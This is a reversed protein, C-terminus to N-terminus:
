GDEQLSSRIQLGEPSPGQQQQKPQIIDRRSLSLAGLVGVVAAGIAVQKGLRSTPLLDIRGFDSRSFPASAVATGHMFGITPNVFFKYGGNGTLQGAIQPSILSEKRAQIRAQKKLHRSAAKAEFEELQNNTKKMERFATQSTKLEKKTDTVLNGFEDLKAKYQETAQKRRNYSSQAHEVIRNSVIARPHPSVRQKELENIHSQLVRIKGLLEAEAKQLPEPITVEDVMKGDKQVKRVQKPSVLFTRDDIQETKAEKRSAVRSIVQDLKEKEAQLDKLSKIAGVLSDNKPYQKAVEPDAILGRLLLENANKAASLKENAKRQAQILRDYKKQQLVLDKERQSNLQNLRNINSRAIMMDAHIIRRKASLPTLPQGTAAAQM